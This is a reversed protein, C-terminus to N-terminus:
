NFLIKCRFILFNSSEASSSVALTMPEPTAVTGLCQVLCPLKLQVRLQNLNSQLNLFLPQLQPYQPTQVNLPSREVTGSSNRNAQDLLVLRITHITATAWGLLVYGDLSKSGQVLQLIRTVPLFAHILQSIVGNYCFMRVVSARQFNTLSSLSARIMPLIDERQTPQTRKIM